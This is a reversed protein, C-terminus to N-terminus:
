VKGRKTDKSFESLKFVSSFYEVAMRGTNHRTNEYEEGPNGLGIITFM